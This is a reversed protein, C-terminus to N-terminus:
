VDPMEQGGYGPRRSPHLDWGRRHQGQVATGAVPRQVPVCGWRRWSSSAAPTLALLVPTVVVCLSVSFSRILRRKVERVGWQRGRTLWGGWMYLPQDQGGEIGLVVFDGPNAAASLRGAGAQSPFPEAPETLKLLLSPFSLLLFLGDLDRGASCSGGWPDSGGWAQLVVSHWAPDAPQPCPVVRHWQPKVVAPNLDLELM